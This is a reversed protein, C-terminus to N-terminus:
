ALKPDYTAVFVPEGDEDIAEDLVREIEDGADGLFELGLGNPEVRRVVAEVMFPHTDESRMELGLHTGVPVQHTTALFM